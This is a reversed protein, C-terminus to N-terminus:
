SGRTARLADAFGGGRLGDDDGGDRMMRTSKRTVWGEHDADEPLYGVSGFQEESGKVTGFRGVMGSM